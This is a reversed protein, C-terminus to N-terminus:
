KKRERWVLCPYVKDLNETKGCKECHHIYLPPNCMKQSGKYKLEEGCECYAKSQYPVVAVEKIKAM